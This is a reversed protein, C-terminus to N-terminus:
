APLPAAVLPVFVEIRTGAGQASRIDLTGNVSRVRHSMGALGHSVKKAAEIDAIGVGDDVISLALGRPTREVTLHIHKAHAHKVANTVSEQVVRYLAIELDAPMRELSDSVTLACEVNASKCAEEVYWQLAAALGLHDLLSPRLNEIIRRKLDIGQDVLHSVRQMRDGYEPNKGLRGQLWSLDMKAPTLIGGLEDHLERALSAKERESNTQLFASLSSLESTRRMVESELNEAYSAQSKQAARVQRQDRILLLALLAILIVNLGVATLITSRSNQVSEEWQRSRQEMQASVITNLNGFAAHLKEYLQRGEDGEVIALARDFDENSAVKVTREMESLKLAILANVDTLKDREAKEDHMLDLIEHQLPPIADISRKFPELYADKRTLLYGRQATEAEIITKELQLIKARLTLGMGMEANTDAFLRNSLESAVLTALSIAVAIVLPLWLRTPLVGAMVEPKNASPPSTM